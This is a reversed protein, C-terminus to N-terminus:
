RGRACDTEGALRQLEGLAEDLHLRESRDRHLPYGLQDLHELQDAGSRGAGPELRRAASAERTEDPAVGLHLLEALRRLLGPAAPPLDDGHDAIGSDALRSQEVLEELRM